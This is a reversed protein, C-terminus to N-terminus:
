ATALTRGAAMGSLAGAIGMINQVALYFLAWKLGRGDQLNITDFIYSSFTTFAGLFGTLCALKMQPSVHFAGSQQSLQAIVGFLCCGLFNVTLSGWPFQAEFRALPYEVLYRSTAGLAGAIAVIAINKLMMLRIFVM